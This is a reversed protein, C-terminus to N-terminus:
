KAVQLVTVGVKKQRKILGMKELAWTKDQCSQRTMTELAQVMMREWDSVPIMTGHLGLRVLAAHFALLEARSSSQSLTKAM